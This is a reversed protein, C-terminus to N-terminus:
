ARRFNADLAYPWILGSFLWGLEGAALGFEQQLQPGGVSLNIRDFHNVLVGTGLLVGIDWRVRPIRLAAPMAIM